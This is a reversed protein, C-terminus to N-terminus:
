IMKLAVFRVYDGARLLAPPEQCPDFLTVETRGIVHWGGPSRIPYIGTQDNAIAVSGAPVALRPRSRRPVRLLDPLEGIYPYGPMFGIMLVPMPRATHLTVVAEESLGAVRAIDGLDPGAAGGYAVAIRHVVGATSPPRVFRPFSKQLVRGVEATSTELPDYCILASDVGPVVEVVGRPACHVLRKSLHRIAAGALSHPGRWHLLLASDGMPSASWQRGGRAHRQLAIKM